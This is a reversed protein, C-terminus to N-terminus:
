RPVPEQTQPASRPNDAASAATAGVDATGAAPPAVTGAAPPAAPAAAPSAAGAATGPSAAVAPSAAVREVRQVQPDSWSGDVRFERTGAAMMPERLLLQAVFSGLGVVPNIAAYALSASGVNLEPVVVIRLDQTEARLDARGEVLVGAQVGLLRLNDTAAVGREIRVDGSVRDFAFGEQFVDRFDLLLRRPLSQLSLVGLLRAVGPEAQLFRGQQLALRLSGDLSPLDPVLPSGAWGLTGDIRGKGGSLAGPVGMRALLRGSDALALGFDLTMGHVPSWRGRGDLEADDNAIRLRDLQWQRAAARPSASAPIRNAAEIELRGLAHGRWRFDEVHMTLSPMRRPAATAGAAAKDTADVRAAAAGAAADVAPRAPAKAAAAGADLVLRALRAQVRGALGADHPQHWEVDGEAEPARLQLQWLTEVTSRHRRLELDLARWRRGALTLGGLRLTAQSPWLAEDITTAGGDAHPRVREGQAPAPVGAVRDAFVAQWADVNLGPLEVVAAVGSAPMPPATTGIGVSGGRVRWGDGEPVREYRAQLRDGIEITLAEADADGLRATRVRLPWSAAAPKDLPAPLTLALGELSSAVDLETRGDSFRLEVRYPARGSLREGLRALPALVPLEVGERLAEASAVGRGEFRLTGDDQTGGEFALEGGLASARAGVIRFGHRSFAVRGHLEGLRPTDPSLRLSNGALEVSGDVTSASADLLPIALALDLTADGRGRAQQLAGGIWGGVPTTDVFGLMAALPGRGHGQLQLVPATLDDIGGNVGELAIEGVRARADRIRMSGRDFEIEGAVEQMAPWPSAFGPEDPIYALGMGEARGRIRFSGPSGDAYPFRWLDGRVVFSGDRLRGDGIAREVWRRTAPPIGLPLYRAVSRTAGQEIRGQLDIVGPYRRGDGFGDGAGTRWSGALTGRADANAFSAEQVQLEIAPPADGAGPRVQWQLAAGLAALTLEPQEFVGPFVLAGDAVRLTAQGGTESAQLEVAAGRLGPRGATAERRAQPPGAPGAALVLDEARLSAQWTAPAQARGQWKLSLDSVRGEPALATLAEHLAPPLPLRAALRALLALDLRDAELGGGRVREWTPAVGEAATSVASPWAPTQPALTLALGLNSRPWLLGEDTRFGLAEIGAEFADDAHRLTLRGQVDSLALPPLGPALRMTVAQLALDATAGAPRGHEIDIWARLAGRGQALEFPLSVHRGLASLDARPLDAYLTGRWDAWPTGPAEALRLPERLKARLAFREGWAPPPTADLRLAHRRGDNRLVLDVDALQLPPAGRLEDTWRLSGHRIVFEQQDLLWRLARGDDAAAVRDDMALGAVHLAGGADRRVDLEVGDLHLQVLRPRLILLSAPSLAAAVRGLRLAPAGRADLLVVEDLDFAPVWSGSRVRIAGIRLPAGIAQGVRQEIQPRWQDLRPLIGWHLILWALLALSWVSLLGAAAWRWAARWGRRRPTAPLAAEARFSSKSSM